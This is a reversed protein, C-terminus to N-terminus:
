AVDRKGTRKSTTAVQNGFVSSKPLFLPSHSILIPAHMLLFSLLGATKSQLHNDGISCNCLISTVLHCSMSRADTTNVRMMSSAKVQDYKSQDM